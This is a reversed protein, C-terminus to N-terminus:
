CFRVLDKKKLRTLRNGTLQLEIHKIVKTLNLVQVFVHDSYSNKNIYFSSRHFFLIVLLELSNLVSCCTTRPMELNMQKFFTLTRANVHFFFVFM